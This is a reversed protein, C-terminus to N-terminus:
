HHHGDRTIVSQSDVLRMTRGNLRNFYMQRLAEYDKIARMISSMGRFETRIKTQGDDLMYEVVDDNGAAGEALTLLAKIIADIRKVKDFMETVGNLYITESDFVSM